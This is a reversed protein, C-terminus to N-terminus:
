HSQTIKQLAIQRDAEAEIEMIARREEADYPDIFRPGPEDLLQGPKGLPLEWYHKLKRGTKQSM